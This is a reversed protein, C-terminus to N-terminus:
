RGSEPDVRHRDRWTIIEALSYFISRQIKRYAPGKRQSRWNALTMPRVGIIEAAVKESVSRYKQLEDPLSTM